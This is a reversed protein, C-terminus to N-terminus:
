FDIRVEGTPTVELWIRVPADIAYFVWAASVMGEVTSVDQGLQDAMGVELRCQTARIPAQLRHIEDVPVVVGM